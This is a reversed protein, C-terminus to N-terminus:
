RPPSRCRRRTRPSRPCTACRCTASACSPCLSRTRRCRARRALPAHPNLTQHPPTPRARAPREARSLRPARRDLSRRPRWRARACGGPRSRGGPVRAVCAPCRVLAGGRGRARGGRRVKSKAEARLASALGSIHHTNIRSLPSINRQMTSSTGTIFTYSTGRMERMKPVLLSAVGFHMDVLLGTMKSFVDRPLELLSMGAQSSILATEDEEGQEGWWAVGTHAVVHHPTAIDLVKEITRDVGSPMMTGMVCHLRSPHGLDKALTVLKADSRSNIIVDAGAQLLGRVVARGIPGVGGVVLATKGRLM